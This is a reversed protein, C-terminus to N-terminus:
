PVQHKDGHGHLICKNCFLESHVKASSGPFLCGFHGPFSTQGCYGRPVGGLLFGVGRDRNPWRSGPTGEGTWGGWAGAGWRVRSVPDVSGKRPWSSQIKDRFNADTEHEGLRVRPGEISGPCLRLGPLPAKPSSGRETLEGM